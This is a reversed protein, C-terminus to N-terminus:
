LVEFTDNVVCRSDKGMEIRATRFTKSKADKIGQIDFEIEHSKSKGSSRTLSVALSVKKDAADQCELDISFPEFSCSEIPFTHRDKRVLKSSGSKTEVSSETFTVESDTVTVLYASGLVPTCQLSKLGYSDAHGVSSAFIVLGFIWSYNKM